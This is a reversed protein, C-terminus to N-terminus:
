RLNRLTADGILRRRRLNDPAGAVRNAVASYAGQFEPDPRPSTVTVSVRAIQIRDRSSGALAHIPFEAGALQGDLDEDVGFEVQLDEVRTSLVQSSRTLRNGNVRYVIAPVVRAQVPSVVFGGPTADDFSLTNGAPPADLVACHSQTGDSVLVGGGERFDDTGDGDLDLDGPRLTLSTAGGGLAASLRAGDFRSNAAEYEDAAMETADSVCLVDPGAAGGDVSHVAAQKPVMFGAMRLDSLVLEMVSRADQQADVVREHEHYSAQQNTFALLFQSIVISLVALAVLLETVTLGLRSREPRGRRLSGRGSM